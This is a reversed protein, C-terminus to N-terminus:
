FVSWSTDATISQMSQMQLGQKDDSILNAFTLACADALDPSHGIESIIDEKELLVMQNNATYKKVKIASLEAQLQDADKQDLMISVPPDNFWDLMLGYMEARKNYYRDPYMVDRSGFAIGRACRAYGAGVIIDLVGVGLGGTDINVRAPNHRRILELVRDASQDIRMPPITIAQAITRGKRLVIKFQDGGQRAPDIGMILPPEKIVAPAPTNRARIVLNSKILADRDSNEFAEQANFPYERKFRLDDGQFDNDTKARRWALHGLTLGDKGYVALLENEAENPMFDVPDRTYEEQWYWPVFIFIFDGKGSQAQMSARHFYNNQGNATSELIIETGPADPVTQMLGAAHDDCNPSYAVESWHVMQYTASRGLGDGTGATGVKYGSHLIPFVLEKANSAGLTPLYLPYSATEHYTKVMKFLNGSATADHAFIFVQIGLNTAVKHFFRASVYTSMGQQRGKLIIARVKGTKRRQEELRHHVYLQAKNMKFPAIQGNKERIHLQVQLYLELDDLVDIDDPRLM